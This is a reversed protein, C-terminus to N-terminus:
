KSNEYYFKLRINKAVAFYYQTIFVLSTNLNRRRIFMETAVLNLNKNGLRDATMDDFIMLLKLEKNPNYEEINGYIDNM